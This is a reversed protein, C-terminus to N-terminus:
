RTRWNTRRPQPPLAFYAFGADAAERAAVLDSRLVGEFEPGIFIGARRKAQADGIGDGYRRAAAIRNTPQDTGDLGWHLAPYECPSHLISKGFFSESM